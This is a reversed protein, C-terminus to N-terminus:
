VDELVFFNEVFALVVEAAADIAEFACKSSGFTKVLEFDVMAPGM